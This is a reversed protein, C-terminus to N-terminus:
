EIAYVVRITMKVANASIATPAYYNMYLDTADIFIPTLQLGGSAAINRSYAFVDMVYCQPLSIPITWYGKAGASLSPVTYSIDTWRISRNVLKSLLAKVNLM